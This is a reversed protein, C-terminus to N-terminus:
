VCVSPAVRLSGMQKRYSGMDVLSVVNRIKGEDFWYFVMESFKVEKGNPEVGAWLKVPTGRFELRAAVQQKEENVILHAVQFKIDPIAEQADEMLRQYRQLSLAQGNHTVIPQCFEALHSAMATPGANITAIYAHYKETLPQQRPTNARAPDSNSQITSARLATTPQSDAHLADTDIITTVDQPRSFIHTAFEIDPQEEEGRPSPGKAANNHDDRAAKRVVLIVRAAQLSTSTHQLVIDVASSILNYKVEDISITRPAPDTEKNPHGTVNLHGAIIPERSLLNFLVSDVDTDMEIFYFYTELGPDFPACAFFGTQFINTSSTFHRLLLSLIFLRLKIDAPPHM